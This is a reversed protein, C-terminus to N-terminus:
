FGRPNGDPQPKNKAFMVLAMSHSCTVTLICVPALRGFVPHYREFFMLIDHLIANGKCVVKVTSRKPCCFNM